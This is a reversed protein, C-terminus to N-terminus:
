INNRIYTGIFNAYDIAVNSSINDLVDVIHMSVDAVNQSEDELMNFQQLIGQVQDSATSADVGSLNSLIATPMATKEIEAATTNMNAYIQYISAADQISMSLDEAMNIASQGLNELDEQAMNMTYSINTLADDYEKFTSVAESINRRVFNVVDGVDLMMTIYQGTSDIADKFLGFSSAKGTKVRMAKANADISATLVRVADNEDKIKVTATQTAENLDIASLKAYKKAAVYKDLADSLDNINTVNGISDVDLFGKGTVSKFGSKNKLFDTVEANLSNLQDRYSDIGGIDTPPTNSMLKLIAELQNQFDKLQNSYEEVKGVSSGLGGEINKAIKDGFNEVKNLEEAFDLKSKLKQGFKNIEAYNYQGKNNLKLADSLETRIDSIINKVNDSANKLKDEVNKIQNEYGSSIDIISKEAKTYYKTDIIDMADRIKKDSVITKASNYLNIFKDEADKASAAFINFTEDDVGKSVAKNLEIRKKIYEEYADSIDNLAKKEKSFENKNYANGFNSQAKQYNDNGENLLKKATERDNITINQLNKIVDYANKADQELKVLDNSLKNIESSYDEGNKANMQKANLNILEAKKNWYEEIIKLNDKYLKSDESAAAKDKAINLKRRSKSSGDSGLYKDANAKDKSTASNLKQIADYASLASSEMEKLKTELESIEDVYRGKNKSLKQEAKLENLKSQTDHYEKLIKLNDAIQKKESAIKANNYKDQATGSGKSADKLGSELSAVMDDSITNSIEALDKVNLYAVRAQNGYEKVSKSAENISKSLDKEPNSLQDAKLLILNSKAKKYNEIAITADKYAKDEAINLKRRSKSSGNDGMYKDANSKDESTASNLKQIADYASLASNEMEKLKTELESIENVYANKNKSSNQEAKLENLRSQTDYYEKLIKLNDAIQKKENASQANTYKDQAAGSGKSADKLGDRLASVMGSSIVSSSKALEQVNIYAERAQNGYEKVDETAEKISKSLDKESNSLQDAKLSILKSKANKYKEIANTADEYAKNEAKIKATNYNERSEPSGSSAAVLRNAADTVQDASIKGGANYLDEIVVLAEGAKVSLENVAESQRRITESFDKDPNAIQKAQTDNLATNATMLDDIVSIQDSYVKQDSKFSSNLERFQQSLTNFKSKIKNFADTDSVNNLSKELYDLQNALLTTDAGSDNMSAKLQNIKSKLQYVNEPDVMKKDNKTAIVPTKKAVRVRSDERDTTVKAKVSSFFNNLFYKSGEPEAYSKAVKLIDKYINRLTQQKNTLSDIYGQDPNIEMQALKLEESTKIIKKLVRVATTELEKYSTTTNEINRIIGNRNTKQGIVRSTGIDTAYTDKWEGTLNNVKSNVIKGNSPPLPPAPVFPIKSLKKESKKNVIRNISDRYSGGQSLFKNYYDQSFMKGVLNSVIKELESIEFEAKRIDVIAFEDKNNDVLRLKADRLRKFLKEYKNEIDSVNLLEDKGSIIGQSNRGITRTSGDKTTVAFSELFSGDNDRRINRMIKSVNAAKIGFKELISTIEEWDETNEIIDFGSLEDSGTEENFIREFARGAKEAAVTGESVSKVLLDTDESITLVYNHYSVTGDDLVNKVLSKIEILGDKTASAEASLLEKGQNGFYTRAEGIISNENKSLYERATDYKSKNTVQKKAEEIQKSSVNLVKALDKLTDKQAALSNLESFINLGTEPFGEFKDRLNGISTAIEDIKSAINDSASIKGINEFVENLGKLESSLGRFKQLEEDSLIKLDFNRESLKEFISDCEKISRIIVDIAGSLQLLAESESNAANEVIQRELQFAENKTEVSQTVTKVANNLNEINKIEETSVQINPKSNDGNQSNSTDESDSEKSVSKKTSGKKAIATKKATKKATPKKSETPTTPQTENNVEKAKKKTKDYEDRIAQQDAATKDKTEQSARQINNAAQNADDTVKQKTKESQEAIAGATSAADSEAQKAAKRTAEISNASTTTPKENKKRLAQIVYYDLTNEQVAASNNYEDYKEKQKGGRALYANYLKVFDTNSKGNTAKNFADSLNSELEDMAMQMYKEVIANARESLVKARAESRIDDVKIYNGDSKQASLLLKHNNIIQNAKKETIGKEPTSAGTIMSLWSSTTRKKYDEFEKTFNQAEAQFDGIKLRKSFSSSTIGYKELEKFLDALVTTSRIVDKLSDAYMTVQRIDFIDSPKNDKLGSVARDRFELVQAINGIIKEAKSKTDADMKNLLQEINKTTLGKTRLKIADDDFPLLTGQTRQLSGLTKSKEPFNFADEAYKNIKKAVKDIQNIAQKSIKKEDYNIFFSNDGIKIETQSLKQSLEKVGKQAAKEGAKAIGESLGGIKNEFGSLIREAINDALKEGNLELERNYDEAM